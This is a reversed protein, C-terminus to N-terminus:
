TKNLKLHKFVTQKYIELDAETSIEDFREAVGIKSIRALIVIGGQIIISKAMVFIKDLVVTDNIMQLEEVKAVDIMFERENM